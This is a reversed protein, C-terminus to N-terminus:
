TGPITFIKSNYNPETPAPQEDSCCAAAHAKETGSLMACLWTRSAHGAGLLLYIWLVISGQHKKSVSCLQQTITSFILGVAAACLLLLVLLMRVWGQSGTWVVGRQIFRYCKTKNINERNCPM